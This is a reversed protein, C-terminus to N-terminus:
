VINDTGINYPTHCIFHPDPPPYIYRLLRAITNCYHHYHSHAPTIFHHNIRACVCVLALIDQIPGSSSRRTAATASSAETSLTHLTSHIIGLVSVLVIYTCVCM